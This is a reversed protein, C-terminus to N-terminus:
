RGSRKRRLWRRIRNNSYARDAVLHKPSSRTEGSSRHQLKGLKMLVEFAQNDHREGETVVFTLPKGSGEAKIHM